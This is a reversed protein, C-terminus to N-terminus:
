GAIIQRFVIATEVIIVIGIAILLYRLIVFDNATGDLNRFITYDFFIVKGVTTFFSGAMSVYTAPTGSSDTSTTVSSNALDGTDAVNAATVMANGDVINCLVQAIIYFMIIGIFLKTSM